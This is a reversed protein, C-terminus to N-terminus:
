LNTLDSDQLLYLSKRPKVSEYSAEEFHNAVEVLSRSCIFMRKPGIWPRNGGHISDAGDKACLLVKVLGNFIEILDQRKLGVITIYPATETLTAYGVNIICM